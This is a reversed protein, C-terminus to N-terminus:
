SAVGVVESWWYKWDPWCEGVPETEVADELEVVVALGDDYGDVAAVVDAAAVVVVTAAVVVFGVNM